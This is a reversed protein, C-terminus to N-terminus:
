LVLHELLEKARADRLYQLRAELPDIRLQAAIEDFFAENAFCNQMRGPSRIWSPKFPTSELRHATTKVNDIAYPIALDQTVGGPSLTGLSDLKALDGGLLSVFGAACSVGTPALARAV